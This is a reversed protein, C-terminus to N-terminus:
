PGGGSAYRLFGLLNGMEDGSFRPYDLGRRGAMAAMRPTHAWMAAAWAPASDYDARPGALDPEVRGGERRLSHCKLCGKRLLTVQGRALDPAADRSADARLYAMLHGMEAVSIDPWPLGERALTAFMVPVHNWLRGALEMEGQPRRLDELPPGLGPEARPVHCRACHKSAFLARGRDPDGSGALGPGAGLALACAAGIGLAAAVGRASM